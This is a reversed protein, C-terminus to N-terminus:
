DNVPPICASEPLSTDKPAPGLQRLVADVIAARDRRSDIEAPFLLRDLALGRLALFLVRGATGDDDPFVARALRAVETGFPELRTQLVRGRETRTAVHIEPGARSLPTTYARWGAEVLAEVRARPPGDPVDPVDISGMAAVLERLGAELVAALIGDRDGFHYQVVGWTVGAREAIHRASAAGFGRELVCAVTEDIIHARTAEARAQRGTGPRTPRARGLPAPPRREM